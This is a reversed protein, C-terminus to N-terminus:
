RNSHEYSTTQQTPNVNQNNQYYAQRELIAQQFQKQLAQYQEYPVMPVTSNGFTYTPYDQAKIQTATLLATAAATAYLVKKVNGLKISQFSTASTVKPINM